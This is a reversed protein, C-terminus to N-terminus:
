TNPLSCLLEAARWEIDLNHMGSDALFVHSTKYAMGFTSAQTKGLGGFIIHVWLM